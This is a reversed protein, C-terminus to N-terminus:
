VGHPVLKDYVAREPERTKSLDHRVSRDLLEKIPEGMLEAVRLSHRLTDPTSDYPMIMHNGGKIHVYISIM